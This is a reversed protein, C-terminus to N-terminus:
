LCQFIVFVCVCVCMILVCEGRTRRLATNLEDVLSEARSARLSFISLAVGAASHASRLRQLSATARSLSRTLQSNEQRAGELESALGAAFENVVRVREAADAEHTELRRM